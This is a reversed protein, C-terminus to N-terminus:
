QINPVQNEIRRVRGRGRGWGGYFYGHELHPAMVRRVELGPGNENPSDLCGNIM